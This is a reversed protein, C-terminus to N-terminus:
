INENRKKIGKVKDTSINIGRNIKRIFFFKLFEMKFIFNRITQLSHVLLSGVTKKHLFFSHIKMKINKGKGKLICGDM